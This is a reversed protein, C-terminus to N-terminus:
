RLVVSQRLELMAIDMVPVVMKGRDEELNPDEAMNIPQHSIVSTGCM